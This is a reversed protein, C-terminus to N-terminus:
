SLHSEMPPTLTSKLYPDTQTPNQSKSKNPVSCRSCNDWWLPVSFPSIRILNPASSLLRLGAIQSCVMYACMCMSLLGMGTLVIWDLPPGCISPFAGLIADGLAQRPGYTGTDGCNRVLPPPPPPPTQPWGSIWLLVRSFLPFFLKHQSAVYGNMSNQRLVFMRHYKGIVNEGMSVKRLITEVILHHM